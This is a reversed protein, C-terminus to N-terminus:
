RRRLRASWAVAGTDCRDFAAEGSTFAARDFLMSRARWTGRVRRRTVFRGSFEYRTVDFLVRRRGNDDFPDLFGVDAIIETRRFRGSPSVRAEAIGGFLTVRGVRGCQARLETEVFDQRRVSRTMTLVLRRDQSTEGPYTGKKFPVAASGASPSVALVVGM